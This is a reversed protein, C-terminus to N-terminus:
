IDPKIYQLTVSRSQGALVWSTRVTIQKADNVTDANIDIEAVTWVTQYMDVTANGNVLNADDYPLSILQEIRDQAVNVAETYHVAKSNTKMAAVQMSAVSLMGVALITIAILLEIMNFGKQGDVNRVTHLIGKM